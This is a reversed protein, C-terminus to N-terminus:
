ATTGQCSSGAGATCGFCHSDTFISTGTIDDLSELDFVTQKPGPIRMDLQQNFDCDYLQGDYRVSVLDRCMVGAVAGPNFNNVLLEMYSGLEDRQYLFDAFRKIPMNTITFLSNFVIGFCDRLEAKYAEQLSAQSPPLFGAGPNYVLDLSLGSGEKGYGLANLDLLGQISKEFVGRGRQLDVNKASYCPLSAVVRVQQEALFRALDSQGDEMLVTLNCRDIVEVGLKRAEVVLYRFDPHMEPAGGTIDLTKVSPSTRILKLVQDIIDRTMAETRLPSSEVHCHACAQNCYLGINVQLITSPLHELPPVQTAKLKDNFNPLGLGELTRRRLTREQKTLQQQGKQQLDNAIRQLEPDNKMEELTQPILSGQTRKKLDAALEESLPGNASDPVSSVRSLRARARHSIRPPVACVSGPLSM